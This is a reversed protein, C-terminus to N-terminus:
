KVLIELAKQILAQRSNKEFHNKLIISNTEFESLIRRIIPYVLLIKPKCKKM